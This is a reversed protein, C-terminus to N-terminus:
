FFELVPPINGEDLTNKIDEFDYEKKIDEIDKENLDNENLFDNNVVDKADKLVNFIGDSLELKPPSPIDRMIEDIKNELNKSNIDQKGRVTEIKGFRTTAGTTTPPHAPFNMPRFVNAPPPPSSFIRPISNSRPPTPPFNPPPPPPPLPPLFNYNKNDNGKKLM